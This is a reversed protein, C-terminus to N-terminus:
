KSKVIKKSKKISQKAQETETKRKGTAKTAVGSKELKQRKEMLTQNLKLKKDESDKMQNYLKLKRNSLLLKSFEKHQEEPTLNKHSEFTSARKAMLREELAAERAAEAEEDSDEDGNGKGNPIKFEVEDDEDDSDPIPNEEEDGEEVEEEDIDDEEQNDLKAEYTKGAREEAM